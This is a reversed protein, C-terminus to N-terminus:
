FEEMATKVLLVKQHFNEDSNELFIHGKKGIQEKFELFDLKKALVILQRILVHENFPVRIIKSPSENSRALHYFDVVQM